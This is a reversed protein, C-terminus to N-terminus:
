GFDLDALISEVFEADTENPDIGALVDRAEGLEGDKAINAVAPLKDILISSIHEDVTGEAIVYYIIVPKKTSARHFRGEWQRLQGPTYPLMVFFVSDCCDLGTISEGFAHGTGVLCCPGPHAAFEQVLDDRADTSTGGHAAWVSAGQIKKAAKRIAEGLRDCDRKRGTFITVKQGSRLCDIVQEVVAKRKRSAAEALRVELVAGPGLKGARKLETAFGSSPRNQDEPALFISQRRKPPLHRHTDHYTLIHATTGIRAKLEELNSSGTTDMGGYVGPRMAAYRKHWATKNGHCNPEALDLQAWLDRVRDSIPTATTCIRKKTLRAMEAAATARSVVPLFLKREIVGPADEIDKIFGKKARAERLDKKLQEKAEEIDEPLDPLTLVEFRKSSKARHSEDFIVSGWNFGKVEDLNAVLSEWGIVVFPRQREESCFNMYSRLDQQEAKVVVGHTVIARKWAKAVGGMDRIEPMKERVFEIWSQGNVTKKRRIQGSPRVVHARVDLFREIERAYQLRSAARTVVLVAGREALALLIGTLSKGAGTQHWIHVGTRNWGFALADKQYGTLFEYLWPRCIQQERLAEEVEDWTTEPPPRQIWHAGLCPAEYENALNNVVGVANYPVVWGGKKHKVGAIQVLEERFAPNEHFLLRAHPGMPTWLNM